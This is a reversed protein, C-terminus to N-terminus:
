NGRGPCFNRKREQLHQNQPVEQNAVQGHLEGSLRNGSSGSRFCLRFFCQSAFSLLFFLLTEDKIQKNKRYDMYDKRGLLLIVSSHAFASNKQKARYRQLVQKELEVEMQCKLPVYSLHKVRWYVCLYIKHGRGCKYFVYFHSMCFCLM